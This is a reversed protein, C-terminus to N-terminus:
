VSRIYVRNPPDRSRVHHWWLYITGSLREGETEEKGERDMEICVISEGNILMTANGHGRMSRVTDRHLVWRMRAIDFFEM